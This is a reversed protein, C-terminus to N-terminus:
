NRRNIWLAKFQDLIWSVVNTFSFGICMGLTGGISGILTTIDYVLFETQVTMTEPQKFTYEIVSAHKLNDKKVDFETRGVYEIINCKGYYSESALFKTNAKEFQSRACNIDRVDTCLPISDFMQPLVVDKCSKQCNNKVLEMYIMGWQEYSSNQSCKSTSELYIYQKPKITFSAMHSLGVKFDLPEGDWWRPADIGFFNPNSSFTVHVKSPLTKRSRDSFEIRIARIEGKQHQTNNSSILYTGTLKDLHINEKGLGPVTNNGMQLLHFTSEDGFIKYSINVSFGYDHKNFDEFSILLVPHEIIPSEQWSMSTMKSKFNIWVDKIFLVSVSSFLLFALFEIAIMLFNINLYKDMQLM